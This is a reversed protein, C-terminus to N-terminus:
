SKSKPKKGFPIALSKMRNRLTSPKLGLISAAGNKGEVKGGTTEMVHRIYASEVANLTQDKEDKMASEGITEKKMLLIPIDDVPIPNEGYLIVAREVVNSLERVNGPWNYEMMIKLATKSLKPVHRLGMERSKKMFFHEVLAPIDERRERLAPMSIPFVALRYYLDDRFSGKEVLAKLDKNTASIVRIDVRTLSSGGVREIEKEQLVRLLRVQANAPLESVEDLFITGGNAREFKGRKQTIAGTFAGKEHGFLESDILSDPIAGCNVPILPGANRPSLKHISNAILEKGTGTEGILLVPSVSPAVRLVQHMVERLGFEAGVIQEDFRRYLEDQLFRNDDALLEKLRIVELYKLSNALAIAVPENLSSWLDIDGAIYKAKGNTRIIFSGIFTNDVILRGIVFSSGPWAEKEAILRVIDDESADALLRVQPYEAFEEFRTRLHPPIPIKESRLIGGQNDATAYIDLTKGVPDYVTLMLQDAPLIDKVYLFCLGLGKEINLSGCIRRTVEALFENKDIKL